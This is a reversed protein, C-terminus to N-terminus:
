YRTSFYMAQKIISSILFLALISALLVKRDVPSDNEWLAKDVTNGRPLEGNERVWYELVNELMDPSMLEPPVPPVYVRFSACSQPQLREHFALKVAINKTYGMYVINDAPDSIAYAGGVQFLSDDVKLEAFSHKLAEQLAFGKPSSVTPKADASFPSSSPPQPTQMTVRRAINSVDSCRHHISVATRPRRVPRWTTGSPFCVFAPVFPNMRLVNQPTQLISSFINGVAVLFSFSLCIQQCYYPLNLVLGM